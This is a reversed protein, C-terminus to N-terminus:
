QDTGAAGYCLEILGSPFTRSSLLRLPTFDTFLPVSGPGPSYSDLSLVSPLVLSPM